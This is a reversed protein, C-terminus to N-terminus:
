TNRAFTMKEGVRGTTSYVVTDITVNQTTSAAYLTNDNTPCIIFKRNGAASEVWVGRPEFRRPFNPNSDDETAGAADALDDDTQYSYDVQDDGTYLYWARTGLQNGPM